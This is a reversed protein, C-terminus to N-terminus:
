SCEHIPRITSSKKRRCEPCWSQIIINGDGMNRQGFCRDDYFVHHGAKGSCRPCSKLNKGEKEMSLSKRLATGCSCIKEKGEVNFGGKMVVFNVIKKLM